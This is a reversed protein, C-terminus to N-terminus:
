QWARILDRVARGMVRTRRRLGRLRGSPSRLLSQALPYASEPNNWSQSPWDAPEVADVKLWEADAQGEAVASTTVDAVLIPDVDSLSDNGYVLRVRFLPDRPDSSRGSFLLDQALNGYRSHPLLEVTTRALGSSLLMNSGHVGIACDAAAMMAMWERERALDLKATRLDLVSSAKPLYRPDKGFGVVVFLLDPFAEALAAHLQGIKLAQHALSQGWLRDQRYNFVILPRRALGDPSLAPLDRVFRRLDYRRPSLHSYARSVHVEERGRLREDVWAALGSYWGLGGSFPLDVEWLESVGDPCLHSLAKPVLVCLGLDPSEDLHRQANLLKLLSHGYIFDLTNLVLIRGRDIRRELRIPPTTTSQAKYSALLPGKFWDGPHKSLVEDTELDLFVSGRLAHSIPLDALFRGSCRPCDAEALTRMGPIVVRRLELPQDDRPCALSVDFTPFVRIM